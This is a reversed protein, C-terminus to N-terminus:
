RFSPHHIGHSSRRINRPASTELMTPINSDIRGDLIVVVDDRFRGYFIAGHVIPQVSANQEILHGATIDCAESAFVLGQGVRKCRFKVGNAAVYQHQLITYALDAVAREDHFGAHSLAIFVNKAVMESTTSPYFDVIDGSGLVCDDPLQLAELKAVLQASNRLVFELKAVLPALRMRAYQAMPTLISSSTPTIIRPVQVVKHSKWTLSIEM